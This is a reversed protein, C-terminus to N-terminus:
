LDRYDIVREKVEVKEKSANRMKTMLMQSAGSESWCEASGICNERDGVIYARAVWMEFIDRGEMTVVIEYELSM